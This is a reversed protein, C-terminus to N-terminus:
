VKRLLWEQKWQFDGANSHRSVRQWNWSGFRKVWYRYICIYFDVIYDFYICANYVVICAWIDYKGRILFKKATEKGGIIWVFSANSRRHMEEFACCWGGIIKDEVCAAAM